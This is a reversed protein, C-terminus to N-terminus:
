FIDLEGGATDDTIGPAKESVVPSETAPKQPKKEASEDKKETAKVTNPPPTGTSPLGGSSPLSGSSPSNGPPLKPEMAPKSEESLKGEIAEGFQNLRNLASLIGDEIRNQNEKFQQVLEELEEIRKEYSSLRGNLESNQSAMVSNQLTLASNQATVKKVYDITQTVKSELLKVTELSVM